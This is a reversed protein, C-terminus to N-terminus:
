IIVSLFVVLASGSGFSIPNLGSTLASTLPDSAARIAALVSAVNAALAAQRTAKEDHEIEKFTETDLLLVGKIRNIM